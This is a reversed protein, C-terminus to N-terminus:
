EEEFERYRASMHLKLIVSEPKRQSEVWEDAKEFSLHTDLARIEHAFIEQDTKEKATQLMDLEDHHWEIAYLDFDKAEIHAIYNTDTAHILKYDPRIIKYGVNPVDHILEVVEIKYPGVRYKRDAEVILVNRLRLPEIKYLLFRPILFLVNPRETQIRAITNLQFHDGHQHTLLVYNIDHIYPQITKFSVGVDVLIEEHYIIANGASSSALVNYKEKM